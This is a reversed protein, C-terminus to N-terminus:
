NGSAAFHADDPRVGLYALIAPALSSFVPAAVQGGLRDEKYDLKVLMVMKPDDVPAVGVFSAIYGDTVDGDALSAGTTTGTKGGVRYGRVSALHGPIGEVVRNMMDVMQNATEERIVRRVVVPDFTRIDSPSRTEAVIYPRMLEGGNVLASIAATVQLPTAAVGQGYSNTALDVESWMPDEHTRLLGEPEGSLGIHTARNIGFEQVYKYFEDPGVQQALWVAGTNLSRQLLQTVTMTGNASFDWNRITSPGIFVAGTDHYTSEPTVHGLDVAIAATLMKFVSGPEYVDTVARNRFLSQDPDNLDLESLQFTPRSTMALVAGTHPDMVVITGGLAGDGAIVEDLKAEVLRQVYRDITLVIDGGPEAKRGVREAGLAIRNGISDREFYITGPTGALQKDFDGEIGTLGHDRGVFGILNSALDGEPYSRKTTQVVRLGPADADNLDIGKDFDLGAYALYLGREEEIVAALLDEASRGIIPAIFTAARQAAVPDQWDARNIFIDWADVTTALPYGNRDLIAGRPARVEQQGFHEERASTRYQDDDILQIHAVRATLVVGAAAFVGALAFLRLTMRGRQGFM